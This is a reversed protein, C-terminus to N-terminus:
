NNDFYWYTDDEDDKFYIGMSELEELLLDYDKEPHIMRENLRNVLKQLLQEM